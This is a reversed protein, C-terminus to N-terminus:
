TPPRPTTGERGPAAEPEVRQVLVTSGEELRVFHVKDLRGLLRALEGMYAALRAMPLTGPSYPDIIFRYERQEKM